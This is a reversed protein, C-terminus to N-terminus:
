KGSSYITIVAWISGVDQPIKDLKVKIVEDDGKGVGSMNDGSHVVSGNANSKKGFYINDVMAGSGNFLLISTDIDCTSEWGLGVAITKIVPPILLPCNKELTFSKGGSWNKCESFLIEDFGLGIVLSRKLLNESELFNKGEGVEETKAM